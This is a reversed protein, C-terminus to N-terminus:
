DLALMTGRLKNLAEGMRQVEPHAPSAGELATETAYPNM